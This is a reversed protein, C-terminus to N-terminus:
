EEGTQITFQNNVNAQGFRAVERIFTELQQKAVKPASGEISLLSSLRAYESPPVNAGAFANLLAGRAISLTSFFDQQDESIGGTARQIGQLSSTLPGTKAKGSELMSLAQKASEVSSRYLAQKETPAKEKPRSKQYSAEFEYLKKAQEAAATKGQRLLVSYARALKDMSYGTATEQAPPSVTQSQPPLSDQSSQISSGTDGPLQQGANLMRGSKGIPLIAGAAASSLQGAKPVSGVMRSAASIATPSTSLAGLAGGLMAGGVGGPLGATASGVIAPTVAGKVAAMATEALRSGKKGVIDTFTRLAELRQGIAASGKAISDLYAIGARGVEKAGNLATPDAMAGKTVKSFASSKTNTIAELPVSKKKALIDAQELLYQSVKLAPVSLDSSTIEKARQRLVQAFDRGNVNKALPRLMANYEKQLPEIIKHAKSLAVKNTGGLGESTIFKDFSMGTAEEFGKAATETVRLAKTALSGSLESTSPAIRKGVASLGKGVVAFPDTARSVQQLNRSLRVVEPIKTAKGVKGAVGAAGGAVTSVDLFTGVPDEYATQGIRRLGERVKGQAFQPVGYKGGYHKALSTAYKESGQEGPVLLQGAGMVTRGINTATEIPRSIAGFIDGVAKAGSTVINGALKGPTAKIQPGSAIEFQNPDYKDDPIRGVRGTAKHIVIAM